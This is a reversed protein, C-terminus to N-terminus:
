FIGNGRERRGAVKDSYHALNICDVSEWGTEKLVSKLRIRRYIDLKECYDKEEPGGGWFFLVRQTDCARGM